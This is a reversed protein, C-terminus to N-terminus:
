SAEGTRLVLRAGLALEGRRHRLTRLCERCWPAWEAAPPTTTARQEKKLRVMATTRRRQLTKAVQQNFYFYTHGAHVTFALCPKGPLTELVAENHVVACGYGHMLCYEIIM